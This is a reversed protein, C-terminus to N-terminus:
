KYGRTALHYEFVTAMGDVLDDLDVTETGHCRDAVAQYGDRWQERFQSELDAAEIKGVVDAPRATELEAPTLVGTELALVVVGATYDGEHLEREWTTIWNGIRALEQLDWLLDRVAGFEARDFQSAYMLDVDAYAFMTMNHADYRETGELNAMTPNDNLVASYEMANTAQRLDYRFVDAFEENRPADEIGSEFAAWVREILGFFEEDVAARGPDADIGGEALRRAEAFSRRDGHSEVLDDLITVYMTLITKQTRVHERHDADVASLTFEPFLAYIWQWLFRDRDGCVAEYDAVLTRVREPLETERVQDVVDGGGDLTAVPSGHRSEVSM